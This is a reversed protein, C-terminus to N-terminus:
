SSERRVEAEYHLLLRFYRSKNLLYSRFLHHDLLSNKSFIEDILFFNYLISYWEIKM